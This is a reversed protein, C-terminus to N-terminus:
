PYFVGDKFGGGFGNGKRISEHLHDLDEKSSELIVSM